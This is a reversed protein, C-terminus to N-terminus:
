NEIKVRKVKLKIPNYIGNDRYCKRQEIFANYSPETTEHEFGDGYGYDIWLQYEDYTKRQYTM